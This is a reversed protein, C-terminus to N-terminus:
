QLVVAQENKETHILSEEHLSRRVGLLKNKLETLRLITEASMRITNGFLVTSKGQKIREDLWHM